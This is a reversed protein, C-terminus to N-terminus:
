VAHRRLMPQAHPNDSRVVRAIISRDEHAQGFGVFSSGGVGAFASSNTPSGDAGAAFRSHLELLFLHADEPLRYSESSAVAFGRM